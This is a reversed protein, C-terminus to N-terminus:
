FVSPLRTPQALRVPLEVHEVPLDLEERDGGWWLICVGGPNRQDPDMVTEGEENRYFWVPSWQM